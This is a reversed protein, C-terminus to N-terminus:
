DKGWGTGVFHTPVADYVRIMIEDCSTCKPAVIPELMSQIKYAFLPTKHNKCMWTYTM